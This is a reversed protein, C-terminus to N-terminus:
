QIKELKSDLQSKPVHKDCYFVVKHKTLPYDWEDYPSIQKSNIKWSAQMGCVTCRKM